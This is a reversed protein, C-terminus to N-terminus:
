HTLYRTVETAFEDVSKCVVYKSGYKEVNAQWAKQEPRQYCHPRKMEIYLAGYGHMPISLCLDAVGKVVGERKTRAAMRGLRIGENAIHFLMGEEALQPYHRKFWRVCAQQIDSEYPAQEAAKKVVRAPISKVDKGQKLAELLRKNFSDRKNAM